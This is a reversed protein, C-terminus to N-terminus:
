TAERALAQALADLQDAAANWGAEWGMERHRAAAQASAHRASWTFRTGGGPADDLVVVGTMFAEPVPVFGETFADTFVLRRVPEIELWIGRGEVREGNPGAMVTNMRGGARLDFNAETVTWPRPCYWRKLLDPETWCRWVAARPAALTRELRLTHEGEPSREADRAARAAASPENVAWHMGFPDALRGYRDGWFQREFPMTVTCGAAVARDWWGQGDAVVLQMTLAHSGRAAPGDLGPARHMLMLVGGNIELGVNMISGADDRVAEGLVKAGWARRYFEIAADADDLGLYPIVGKMLWSEERPDNM